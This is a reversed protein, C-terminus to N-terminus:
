SGGNAYVVLLWFVQGQEATHQHNDQSPLEKNEECLVEKGCGTCHYIGAHEPKEGPHYVRDFATHDYVALYEQYKYLAM